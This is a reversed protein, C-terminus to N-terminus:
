GPGTCPGGRPSPDEKPLSPLQVQRPPAGGWRGEGSTPHQGDSVSGQGGVQRPQGILHRRRGGLPPARPTQRRSLSSPSLPPPHLGTSPPGRGEPCWPAKGPLPSPLRSSPPLVLPPPGQLPAPGPPSGSHRAVVIQLTPIPGPSLQLLESFVFPGCRSFPCDTAPSARCPM